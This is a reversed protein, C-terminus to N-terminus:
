KKKTKTVKKTPKSKKGGCAMNNNVEKELNYGIFEKIEISM